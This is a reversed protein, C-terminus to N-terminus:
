APLHLYPFRIDAGCRGGPLDSEAEPGDLLLEDLFRDLAVQGFHLHALEGLLIALALAHFVEALHQLGVM